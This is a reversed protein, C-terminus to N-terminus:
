PYFGCIWHTICIKYYKQTVCNTKTLIDLSLWIFSKYDYKFIYEKLWEYNSALISQDM